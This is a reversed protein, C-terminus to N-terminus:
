AKSLNSKGIELILVSKVIKLILVCLFDSNEGYTEPSM